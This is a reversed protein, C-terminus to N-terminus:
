KFPTGSLNYPAGPKAPQRHCHSLPQKRVRASPWKRKRRSIQPFVSFRQLLDTESYGRERVRTTLNVHGAEDHHGERNGGEGVKARDKKNRAQKWSKVIRTKLKEGPGAAM